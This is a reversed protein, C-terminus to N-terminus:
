KGYARAAIRHYALERFGYSTILEASETGYGNGHHEPDIWIGIEATDVEGTIEELSVIGVMEEEVCIGLHVDEDNSIVEEFFAQQQSLNQPTRVTLYKRVESNNIGERLFELDGEEVTRLNVKDGKLFVSGPM